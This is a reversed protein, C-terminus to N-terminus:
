SLQERRWATPDRQYQQWERLIDYLPSHDNQGPSYLIPEVGKAKWLATVFSERGSECPAFAYVEHLDSYRERDSELV